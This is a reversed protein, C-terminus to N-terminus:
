ALRKRARRRRRDTHEAWRGSLRFSAEECAHRWDALWPSEIGARLTLAFIVGGIALLGALIALLVFTL